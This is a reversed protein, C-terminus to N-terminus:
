GQRPEPDYGRSFISDLSFRIRQLANISRSPERMRAGAVPNPRLRVHLDQSQIKDDSRERLSDRQRAEFKEGNNLLGQWQSEWLNDDFGHTGGLGCLIHSGRGDAFSLKPEHHQNGDDDYNHSCIQIDAM